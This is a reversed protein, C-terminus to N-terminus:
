CQLCLSQYFSDSLAKPPNYLQYATLVPLNHGFPQLTAESKSQDLRVWNTPPSTLAPPLNFLVLDTGLGCGLHCTGFVSAVFSNPNEANGEPVLFLSPTTILVM